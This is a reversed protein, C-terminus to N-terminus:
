QGNVNTFKLDHLFIHSCVSLVVILLMPILQQPTTLKAFRDSQGGPILGLYGTLLPHTHEFALPCNPICSNTDVRCLDKGRNGLCADWRWTRVANEFCVALLNREEVYHGTDQLTM